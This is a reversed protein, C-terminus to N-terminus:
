KTKLDELQRETEAQDDREKADEKIVNVEEELQADHEEIMASIQEGAKELKQINALAEKDPMLPDVTVLDKFKLYQVFYQAYKDM